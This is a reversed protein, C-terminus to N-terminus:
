GEGFLEAELAKLAEVDSEYDNKSQTTNGRDTRQYRWRHNHQKVLELSEPRMWGLVDWRYFGVVENNIREPQPRVRWLRDRSSVKALRQLEDAPIAAEDVASVRVDFYADDRERRLWASWTMQSPHPASTPVGRGWGTTEIFWRDGDIFLERAM